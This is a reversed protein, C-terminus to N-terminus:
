LSKEFEKLAPMLRDKFDELRLFLGRKKTPDPIWHDLNPFKVWVRIDVRRKQNLDIKEQVRIQMTDTLNVIKAEGVELIAM